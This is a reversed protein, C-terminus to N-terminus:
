YRTKSLRKYSKEIKKKYGPSYYYKNRGLQTANVKSAEVRKANYPNQKKAPACAACVMILIAFLIYKLLVKLM